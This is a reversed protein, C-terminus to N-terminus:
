LAVMTEWVIGNNNVKIIVNTGNIEIDDAKKEFPLFIPKKNIIILNNIEIIKPYVKIIPYLKDDCYEYKPNKIYKPYISPYRYNSVYYPKNFLWM